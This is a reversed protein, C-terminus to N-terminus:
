GFMVSVCELHTLFHSSKGPYLRSPKLHLETNFFRLDLEVVMPVLVVVGRVSEEIVKVIVSRLPLSVSTITSGGNGPTAPLRICEHSTTARM